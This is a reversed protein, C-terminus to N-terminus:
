GSTEGGSPGDPPNGDSSLIGNERLSDIVRRTIESLRFENLSTEDDRVWVAGDIENSPYVSPPDIEGIYVRVNVMLSSHPTIGIYVGYLHSLRFEVKGMEERAERQFAEFDGEGNQIKGGPLIWIDQKHLLLIRGNRLSVVNVVKEM